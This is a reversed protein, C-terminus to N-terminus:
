RGLVNEERSNSARSRATPRLLVLAAIGPSSPSSTTPGQADVRRRADRRQALLDQFERGQFKIEEGGEGAAPAPHLRAFIEDLCDAFAEVVPQVTRNVDVDPRQAALQAVIRFVRAEDAGDPGHSVHQYVRIRFSTEM